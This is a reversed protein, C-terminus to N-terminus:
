WVDIRRIRPLDVDLAGAAYQTKAQRLNRRAAHRDQRRARKRASQGTCAPCGCGLNKFSTLAMQWPWMPYRYLLHRNTPDAIQVEWPRHVDTRSM